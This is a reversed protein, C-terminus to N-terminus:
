RSLHIINEKIALQIAQSRSSVNLKRYVNKLHTKITDLSLNVMDSIEKNSMGKIVCELIQLERQSLDPREEYKGSRFMNERVRRIVNSTVCPDMYSKGQLINRIINMLDNKKVDKLVYGDAGIKISQMVFEEDDYNTLLIVKIEPCRHKILRTAEIGSIGPMKLDMLVVDYKSTEIMEVADMGSASENVYEVDSELELLAKLGERVIAHDDVILIRIHSLM